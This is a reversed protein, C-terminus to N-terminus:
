IPCGKQQHVMPMRCVDSRGRNMEERLKYRQCLHRVVLGYSPHNLVAPRGLPRERAHSILRNLMFQLNPRQRTGSLGRRFTLQVTSFAHHDSLRGRIHSGYLPRGKRNKISALRLRPRRPEQLWAQGAALVPSTAPDATTGLQSSPLAARSDRSAQPEPFGMVGKIM